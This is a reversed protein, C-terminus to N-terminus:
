EFLDRVPIAGRTRSSLRRELEELWHDRGMLDRYVKLSPQLLERDGFGALLTTQDRLRRAIMQRTAQDSPQESGVAAALRRLTGRSAQVFASRDSRGLSQPALQCLLPGPLLHDRIRPDWTPDPEVFLPRVDALTSLSFETPKGVIALERLLPALAPELALHQGALRGRDLQDIPLVLVDARQGWAVQAAWFRYALEPQRVLVLARTPLSGLAEDTFRDTGRWERRDVVYAADDAAVLVSTAQLLLLSMSLTRAVALPAKLVGLAVAHIALTALAALSVLSTLRFAATGLLTPLTPWACFGLHFAAGLVLVGVPRRLVGRALGWLSGGLAALLQLPGFDGVFSQPAAAAAHSTSSQWPPVLNPAIPLTAVPQLLFILGFVMVLGASALGGLVEGRTPWRRAMAQEAILMAFLVTALRHNELITLAVMAGIFAAQQRQHAAHTTGLQRRLLAWTGFLLAVATTAGGAVTGELQATVGLTALWAAGLALPPALRPTRANALLLSHVLSYTLRALVALSIASVLGARLVRGGLPLMMAVQSLLTSVFGESGLPLLGLGRVLAADDRWQSSPSVRTLTVLWPVGFALWRCANELM